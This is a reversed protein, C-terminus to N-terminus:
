SMFFMDEPIIRVTFNLDVVLTAYHSLSDLQIYVYVVTDLSKAFYLNVLKIEAYKICIKKKKEPWYSWFKHLLVSGVHM